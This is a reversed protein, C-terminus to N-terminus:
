IKGPVVDGSSLDPNSGQVTILEVAPNEVSPQEGLFCLACLKNVYNNLCFKGPVVEGSLQLSLDPISGQTTHYTTRKVAPEEVGPQEGLFCLAVLYYYPHECSSSRRLIDREHM